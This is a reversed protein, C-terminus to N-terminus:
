ARSPNTSASLSSRAGLPQPLRKWGPPTQEQSYCSSPPQARGSFGAPTLTSCQSPHSSPLYSFFFFFLQPGSFALSCNSCSGTVIKSGSDDELKLRTFNTPQLLWPFDSLFSSSSSSSLFSFLFLFLVEKVCGGEREYDTPYLGCADERGGEEREHVM